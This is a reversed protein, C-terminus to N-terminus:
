IKKLCAEVLGLFLGDPNEPRSSFEPHFQSAIFFQHKKRDLELIEMFKGDPSKGSFKLGNKELIEKYKLNVEYRHRHRRSVSENKYIEYALSNKDIICEYSGLRMTGGLNKINKQEPILDIVPDKCNKDIESSNADPLNCVNRAFEIVALQFGLCIGLFPINNERCFKIADIKGKIGRIGFGGPVIIGDMSNLHELDKESDIFSIEIKCNRHMECHRLAEKISLYADEIKTYKGVIGINIKKDSEHTLNKVLLKWRNLEREKKVNRDKSIKLGLNKCIIEGLKQEDFKLPVEYIEGTTDNIVCHEEIGSFLAIKKKADESLNENCRAIIVDPFIGAELLKGVSHQTPKTKHEGNIFPVYSLHVFVVKEKLSLQRLAELFVANELDGVTGGVEIIVVENKLKKILEIMKNTVHPVIQVTKGLYKGKREEEIVEKYIKGNTISSDRNLNINLFREYHGFDLDTETGDELVYVEGHEYPNLTGPDVNLYGDFKIMNVDFGFSKMIKGISAAVIGKGLGSM